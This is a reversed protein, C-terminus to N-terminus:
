EDSDDSSDTYAVANRFWTLSSTDTDELSVFYQKCDPYILLRYPFKGTITITEITNSTTITSMDNTCSMRIKSTTGNGTSADNIILISATDSSPVITVSVGYSWTLVNDITLASLYATDNVVVNNYDGTTKCICDTSYVVGVVLKSETEYGNVDNLTYDRIYQGDYVYFDCDTQDTVINVTDETRSNSSTPFPSYKYAATADRYTIVYIYYGSADLGYYYYLPSTSENLIAYTSSDFKVSSAIFLGITQYNVSITLQATVSSITSLSNRIIHLATHNDDAYWYKYTQILDSVDAEEFTFYSSSNISSLTDIIASVAATQFEGNYLYYTDTTVSYNKSTIAIYDNANNSVTDIIKKGFWIVHGDVYNRIKM